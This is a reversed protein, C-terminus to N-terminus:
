NEEPMIPFRKVLSGDALLVIKINGAYYGNLWYGTYGEYTGYIITTIDVIVGDRDFSLEEGIPTTNLCEGYTNFLYNYVDVNIQNQEGVVLTVPFLNSDNEWSLVSALGKLISIQYIRNPEITLEETWKIDDPLILTAATAGSTFQFLFENAVGATESGLTLTLSSVEEWVHFTNPTLTFTTDSTGHNVEAYAGSGSSSGGGSSVNENIANIRENLDNYAAAHVEENAIIENTINQLGEQFEEKTVAVGSILSGIDKLRSDLDTYAAAHVEENAIMENTLDAVEDKTALHSIDQHEQLATAGLAAGSRITELDAIKDQKAAIQQEIGAIIGELSETDQVGNLFAIIENFSEIATSADGSVLTNFQTTLSNVANQITTDDYNNLGELKAKLASTFDETSLGKGEIKDIKNDLEGRLETDDYSVGDSTIEINGDGLISEGNITKINTGSILSDQKSLIDYYIRSDLTKASAGFQTLYEREANSWLMIGFPINGSITCGKATGYFGIGRVSEYIATKYEDPNLAYITTTGDTLLSDSNIDGEEYDRVGVRKTYVNGIFTDRAVPLGHLEGSLYATGTNGYYFRSNDISAGTSGDVFAIDCQSIDNGHHYLNFTICNTNETFTIDKYALLM